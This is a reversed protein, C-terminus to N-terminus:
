IKMKVIEVWHIFHYHENVAGNVNAMKKNDKMDILLQVFKWTSEKEITSLTPSADITKRNIIQNLFLNM